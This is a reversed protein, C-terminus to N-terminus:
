ANFPLEITHHKGRGISKKKVIGPLQALSGGHFVFRVNASPAVVRFGNATNRCVDLRISLPLPKNIRTRITGGKIVFPIEIRSRCAKLLM